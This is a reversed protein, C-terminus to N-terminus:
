GRVLPRRSDSDVITTEATVPRGDVANRALYRDARRHYLGGAVGGLWGAVLVVVIGVVASVVAITTNTQDTFWQPLRVDSFVNYEQGLWAGAGALVAALLVFFVASWLGNRGGSYRAVRGAVWGGVLFSLVLVVLGAVFGGASLTERDRQVDLQYGITGIAGALGGLLTAMGVAALLGAIAAGLDFGGYRRRARRVGFRRGGTVVPADDDTVVPRDDVPGPDRDARVRSGTIRERLDGARSRRPEETVTDTAASRRLQM